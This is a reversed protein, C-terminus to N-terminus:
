LKELPSPANKQTRTLAAKLAPLYGQVMDHAMPRVKTLEEWFQTIILRHPHHVPLYLFHGNASIVFEPGVHQYLSTSIGAVEVPPLMPVPDESHVVRLINLHTLTAAGRSDTFKPQGFTIASVDPFGRHDLLAVLLAAVSGGLSHGTLRVPRSKDIRNLIWPLCERTALDFGEHILIGLEHNEHGLFDLDAIIDHLNATGRLVVWQINDATDNYLYVRLGTAPFEGAETHAAYEQRFVNPEHYASNSREAFELIRSLEVHNFDDEM